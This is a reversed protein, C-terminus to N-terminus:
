KLPSNHSTFSVACVSQLASLESYKTLIWEESKMISTLPIAAAELKPFKEATLMALNYIGYFHINLPM